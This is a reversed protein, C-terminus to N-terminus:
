DFIGWCLLCKTSHPLSVGIARPFYYLIAFFDVGHSAAALIERDMTAQDNYEGLLPVREPHKPRWDPDNVSWGQGHWKNPSEKWWGAFYNIGVLTDDFGEPASQKEGALARGQQALVILMAILIRMKM